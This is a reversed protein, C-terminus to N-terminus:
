MLFVLLPPYCALQYCMCPALQHLQSLFTDRKRGVRKKARGRRFVVKPLALNLKRNCVYNTTSPLAICKVPGRNAHCVILIIIM